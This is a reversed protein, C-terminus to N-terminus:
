GKRSKLPRLESLMALLHRRKLRYILTSVNPDRLVLDVSARNVYYWAREPDIDRPQRKDKPTRESM